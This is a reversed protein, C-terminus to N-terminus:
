DIISINMNPKSCTSGKEVCSVQYTVNNPCRDNLFTEYSTNFYKNEAYYYGLFFMLVAVALCLAVLFTKMGESRALKSEISEDGEM